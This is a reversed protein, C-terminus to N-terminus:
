ISSSSSSSVAVAVAVSYCVHLFLYVGFGLGQVVEYISVLLLIFFTPRVIIHFIRTM